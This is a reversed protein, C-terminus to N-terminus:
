FPGMRSNFEMGLYPGPHFGNQLAMERERERILRAQLRLIELRIIEQRMQEKELERQIVSVHMAHSYPVVNQQRHHGEFHLHQGSEPRIYGARVAQDPFYAYNRSPAHHTFEPYNSAM